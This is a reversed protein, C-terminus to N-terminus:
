ATKGRAGLNFVFNPVPEHDWIVGQYSLYPLKDSPAVSVEVQIRFLASGNHSRHIRGDKMGSIIVHQSEELLFGLIAAFIGVM